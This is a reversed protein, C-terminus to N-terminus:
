ATTAREPSAVVSSPGDGRKLMDRAEGEADAAAVIRGTRTVALGNTRFLFTGPGQGVAFEAKVDDGADAGQALALMAGDRFDMAREKLALNGDSLAGDGRQELAVVLQERQAEGVLSAELVDERLLTVDNQSQIAELRELGM